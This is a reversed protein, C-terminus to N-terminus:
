VWGGVQAEGLQPAPGRGAPEKRRSEECSAGEVPAPPHPETGQAAMLQALPLPTVEGGRARLYPGM